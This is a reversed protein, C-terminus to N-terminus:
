YMATVCKSPNEQVQRRVKGYSIDIVQRLYFPAVSLRFSGSRGELAAATIGHLETPTYSRRISREGDERNIPSVLPALFRRFLALPLPHRVLDLLIFRRCSRAVNRILAVLEDEYLHHGLHMSIAVDASPLRDCVADMQLVKVPAAVSRYPNIDAGIVEVSLRRGLEQLVFVPGCGIDLIRRVPLPDRRISRIMYGTDGLWRHIRALDRYAREVSEGPLGEQDLIESENERIM